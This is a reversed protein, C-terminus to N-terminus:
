IWCRAVSSLRTDGRCEIVEEDRAGSGVMGVACFGTCVLRDALARLVLGLAVEFEMLELRIPRASRSSPIPSLCVRLFQRLEAEEDTVPPPALRQTSRNLRVVTCARHESGSGNQLMTLDDCRDLKERLGLSQAHRDPIGEVLRDTCM